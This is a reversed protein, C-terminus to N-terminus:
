YYIFLIICGYKETKATNYTNQFLNGTEFPVRQQLISVYARGQQASPQQLRKFKEGFVLALVRAM